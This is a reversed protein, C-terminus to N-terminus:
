ELVTDDGMMTGLSEGGIFRSLTDDSGNLNTISVRMGVRHCLAAASIKTEIGGRGHSSSLNVMGVRKPQLGRPINWADITRYKRCPADTRPDSDYVGGIDSFFIVSDAGVIDAIMSALVDNESFGLDMLEIEAPSVPDNENVIPVLYSELAELLTSALSQREDQHCCNYFTALVQAVGFGCSKFADRWFGMLIDQGAAALLKESLKRSPFQSQNEILWQRGASIAGSSVVITLVGVERLRAVQRAISQFVKPDLAGDTGTLENRGFKVVLRRPKVNETM